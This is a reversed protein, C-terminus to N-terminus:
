MPITIDREPAPVYVSKSYAIVVYVCALALVIMSLYLITRTAVNTDM